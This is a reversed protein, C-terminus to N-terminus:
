VDRPGLRMMLGALALGALCWGGVLDLCEVLVYPASFGYWTWGPLVGGLCAALAAAAVLGVKGLVTARTVALLLCALLLGELVDLVFETILRGTLDQSQDALDPRLSVAALVGEGALYVGNEPANARLCQVVAQTDKFEKVSEIPLAAHVVMGWLFLIIGAVVAGAALFKIAM